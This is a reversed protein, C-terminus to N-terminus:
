HVARRRSAVDIFSECATRRHSVLAVSLRWREGYVVCTDCFVKQAVSHKKAIRVLASLVLLFLSPARM